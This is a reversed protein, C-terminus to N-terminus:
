WRKGGKGGVRNRSSYSGANTSSAGFASSSTHDRSSSGAASSSINHTNSSGTASSSSTMASGVATAATTGGGGRVSEEGGGGRKQKKKERFIERCQDSCDFLAKHDVHDSFVAWVEGGRSVQQVPKPLHELNIQNPDIVAMHDLQKEVKIEQHSFDSGGTNARGRAPRLIANNTTFSSSSSTGQLERQYHHEGGRSSMPEKLNYIQGGAGGAGKAAKYQASREDEGMRVLDRNKGLRNYDYEHPHPRAISEDRTPRAKIDEKKLTRNHNERSRSRNKNGDGRRGGPPSSRKREQPTLPVTEETEDDDHMSQKTHYTPPQAPESTEPVPAATAWVGSSLPKCVFMEGDKTVTGPVQGHLFFDFPDFSWQEPPCANKKREAYLHEKEAVIKARKGEWIKRERERREESAVRLSESTKPSRSKKDRSKDGGRRDRGSTSGDAASRKRDEDERDKKRGTTGTGKGGGRSVSRLEPTKLDKGSRSKLEELRTGRAAGAPSSSKGVSDTKNGRKSKKDYDDKHDKKNDYRRAEKSRGRGKESRPASYSRGSQGRRDRDRSSKKINERRSSLKEDHDQDSKDRTEGRGGRGNYEYDKDEFPNNRRKLKETITRDVKKEIDESSQLSASNLRKDVVLSNTRSLQKDNKETASKEISPENGGGYESSGKRGANAGLPGFSGRKRNPKLICNGAAPNRNSFGESTLVNTTGAVSKYNNHEKEVYKENPRLDCRAGGSPPRLLVTSPQNIDAASSKINMEESPNNKGTKNDGSAFRDPSTTAGARDRKTKIEAAAELKLQEVRGKMGNGVYQDLLQQGLSKTESHKDALKSPPPQLINNKTSSTTGSGATSSNNNEKNEKVDAEKCSRNSGAGGRPVADRDRAGRRPSRSPQKQRFERERELREQIRKEREEEKQKKEEELRLKEEQKGKELQARLFRFEELTVNNKRMDELEEPTPDLLPIIVDDDGDHKSEKHKGSPTGRSRSRSGSRSKSRDRKLNNVRLREREQEEDEEEAKATAMEKAAKLKDDLLKQKYRSKLEEAKSRVSAPTEIDETMKRKKSEPDDNDAPAPLKLNDNKKDNQQREMEVDGDSKEEEIHEDSSSPSSSEGHRLSDESDRRRGIFNLNLGLGGPGPAASTASSRGTTTGAGGGTQTTIDQAATKKDSKMKNEAPAAENDRGSKAGGKSKKGEATATAQNYKGFQAPPSILDYTSGNGHADEGDDDSVSSSRKSRNTKVLVAGDKISTTGGQKGFGFRTSSADLPKKASSKPIPQGSLTTTKRNNKVSLDDLKKANTM